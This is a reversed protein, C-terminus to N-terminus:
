FLSGQEAQYQDQYGAIIDAMKYSIGLKICLNKFTDNLREYDEAPFFYQNVQDNRYKNAIEPSLKELAKIYYDKQRDRLTMGFLPYIYDTNAAHAKYILDVLLKLNDTIYPLIPMFLIGSYLNNEKCKALAAFRESPLSVHREIQSALKDHSTSFSFGINVPSHQQISKFREIDRELLASKTALSVGFGHTDILELANKTLCKKRELHNYADSMAGFGIVAKKRKGQLEQNLLALANEKYTVQDFNDIQYCESRSDCYICGHHCGRYINMTYDTGFWERNKTKTLLKKAQIKEM